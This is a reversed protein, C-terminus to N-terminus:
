GRGVVRSWTAAGWALTAWAVRAQRQGGAAAGGSSLEGAQRGAGAPLGAGGGQTGAWEGCAASLGGRVGGDGSARLGGWVEAPPVGAGSDQAGNGGSIIGVAAPGCAGAPGKRCPLKRKG